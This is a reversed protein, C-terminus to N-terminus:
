LSLIIYDNNIHHGIEKGITPRIKIIQKGSLQGMKQQLEYPENKMM